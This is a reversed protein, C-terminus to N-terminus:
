SMMESVSITGNQCIKGLDNRELDILMIHEAQEKPHNKLESKLQQDKSGKARRRTGAIPRPQIKNGDITFLRDPSPSILAFDAFVVGFGAIGWVAFVKCENMASIIIIADCHKVEFVM